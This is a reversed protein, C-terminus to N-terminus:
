DSKSGNIIYFFRSVEYRIWIIDDKVSEDNNTFLHYNILNKDKISIVITSKM